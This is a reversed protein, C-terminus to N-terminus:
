FIAKKPFTKVSDTLTVLTVQLEILGTDEGLLPFKSVPTCVRPLVGHSSAFILTTCGCAKSLLFGGAFLCFGPSSCPASKRRLGWSAFLGALM